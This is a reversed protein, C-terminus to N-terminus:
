SEQGKKLRRERERALDASLGDVILIDRKAQNYGGQAVKLKDLPATVDNLVQMHAKRDNAMRRTMADHILSTKFADLDRLLAAIKEPGISGLWELYKTEENQSSM